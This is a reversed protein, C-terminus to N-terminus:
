LPMLGIGGGAKRAIKRAGVSAARSTTSSSSAKRSGGASRRKSVGGSARKPWKKGSTKRGGGRGGYSSKPKSQSPQSNLGQLKDHWAQVNPQSGSNNGNFYHSDEGEDEDDLDDDMEVESSILDVVEQGQDGTPNGGMIEQYANYHRRLILLIRPGHEKVKDPEIGPIRKMKDLSITWHIAMEQFDRDTFLPKRLEKRNRINEEIKKAELVFGHIIDQHIEPLDQLRTDTSIPPGLRKSPPKAPRHKPLEDFAEEDDDMPDDPMAFRDDVYGDAM